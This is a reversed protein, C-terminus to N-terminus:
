SGSGVRAVIAKKDFKGVLNKPLEPVIEFRSPVKISALGQGTCWRALGAANADHGERLVVVACLSEGWEPDPLGVVAVELM